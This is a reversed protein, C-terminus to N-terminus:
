LAYLRVYTYYNKKILKYQKNIQFITKNQLLNILKMSLNQIKRLLFLVLFQSQPRAKSFLFLSSLPLAVLQKIQSPVRVGRNSRQTLTPGQPSRVSGFFYLNYFQEFPTFLIECSFCASIKRGLQKWHKENMDDIVIKVM